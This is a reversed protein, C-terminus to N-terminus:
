RRIEEGREAECRTRVCQLVPFHGNLRGDAAHHLDSLLGSM